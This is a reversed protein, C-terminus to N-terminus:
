IQTLARNFGAKAQERPFLIELRLFKLIQLQCEEAIQPIGPMYTDGTCTDKRILLCATQVHEGLDRVTLM